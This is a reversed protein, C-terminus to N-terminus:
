EKIIYTELLDEENMNAENPKFNQTIPSNAAYGFVSSAAINKEIMDTDDPKNKSIITSTGNTTNVYLAFQYLGNAIQHVVLQGKTFLTQDSRVKQVEDDKLYTGVRNHLFQRMYKLIYVKINKTTDNAIDGYISQILSLIGSPPKNGGSKIFDNDFANPDFANKFMEFNLDVVEKDLLKCTNGLFKGDLKHDTNVPTTQVPTQQAQTNPDFPNMFTTQPTLSQQVALPALVAKTPTVAVLAPPNITNTAINFLNQQPVNNNNNNLFTMGTNTYTFDKYNSDIMVLYGLNPIYYDVDDVKYKWYNVIQGRIPIDQIFINQEISFNKICIKHIQMTYLAIMIQFLINMWENETHIGRNIMEKVNSIGDSIKYTTSAWSFLTYTPSETLLTLAKGAYANPNITIVQDSANKFNIQGNTYSMFKGGSVALSTLKNTVPITIYKDEDHVANKNNKMFSIKDFDICSNEAIFYGFLLPFNPCVKKKLIYERIYEYFTLERWEDFEYFLSPNLKNILFSGEIMKYIRINVTLSDKACMTSGATNDYRVPYCSKYILFGDPLGMYINDSFKYSNYPNLDGFRLFSLLSNDGQGDLTIDTGDINNFVSSRIFQLSTLREGLSSSSLDFQNKFKPLVDEHIMFLRQHNATPGATDIHIQKVIHPPYATGGAAPLGMAPFYNNMNPNFVYPLLGSNYEQMPPPKPKPPQYYQFNITPVIEKKEKENMKTFHIQKTENPISAVNLNQTYMPITKSGGM